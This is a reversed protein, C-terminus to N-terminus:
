KPPYLNRLESLAGDAKEAAHSPIYSVCYAVFVADWLRAERESTCNGPNFEPPTPQSQASALGTSQLEGVKDVLQAFTQNPPSDTRCRWDGDSFVHTATEFKRPVSQALGPPIRSLFRIHIEPIQYQL